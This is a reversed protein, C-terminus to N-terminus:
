KMEDDLDVIMDHSVEGLADGAPAPIPTNFADIGTLNENIVTDTGTKFTPVHYSFGSELYQLLDQNAPTDREEDSLTAVWAEVCRLRLKDLYPTEKGSQHDIYVLEADVGSIMDEDDSSSTLEWNGKELDNAFILLFDGFNDAIRFKTDFDRGFIIVQGWKPGSETPTETSLDVGICNGVGDTLIPIWMSHAYTPIISGPPVARQKPLGQPKRASSSSAVKRSLQEVGLNSEQSEQSEVEPHAPSKEQLSQQVSTWSQTMVAIEDISMIKLGFVIGGSGNDNISVQGGTLQFFEVVCPPLRCNLDKQLENIDAETCPSLLSENLDLSHKQLWKKIHRWALRVEHVGELVNAAPTLSIASSNNQHAYLLSTEVSPKNIRNFSKRSDFDSYKDSASLSYVLEKFREAINM